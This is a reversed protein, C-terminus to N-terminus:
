NSSNLLVTEVEKSLKEVTTKLEENVAGYISWCYGDARVKKEVKQNIEEIRGIGSGDKKYLVAEKFDIEVEGSTKTLTALASLAGGIAGFAMGTALAATVAASYDRQGYFRDLKGVLYVDAEEKKNFTVDKFTEKKKLHESILKSVQNSVTGEDYHKEANICFTKDGIKAKKDGSFLIQNEELSKRNDELVQVDLVMNSLADVKNVPIDDMKYAIKIGGCGQLVLSFGIIMLTAWRCRDM